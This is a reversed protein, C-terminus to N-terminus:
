RSDESFRDDTESLTITDSLLRSSLRIRGLGRDTAHDCRIEIRPTIETTVSDPQNRSVYDRHGFYKYMIADIFKKAESPALNSSVSVGFLSKVANIADTCGTRVVDVPTEEISPTDTVTITILNEDWDYHVSTHAKGILQQNESVRELRSTGVYETSM